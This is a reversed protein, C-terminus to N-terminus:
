YLWLWLWSCLQHWAKVRSLPFGNILGEEKRKKEKRGLAVKILQSEVSEHTTSKGKRKTSKIILAESDDDHLSLM